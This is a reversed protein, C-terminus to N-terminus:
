EGGHHPLKYRSNPDVMGTADEKSFGIDSRSREQWRLVKLVVERPLDEDM